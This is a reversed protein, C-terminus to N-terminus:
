SATNIPILGLSASLWLCNRSCFSRGNLRTESESPSKLLNNPTFRLQVKPNTGTRLAVNTTSLTPIQWPAKVSSILTVLCTSSTSRTNCFSLPTSWIAQYEHARVSGQWPSVAWFTSTRAV